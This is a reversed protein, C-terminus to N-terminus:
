EVRQAIAALERLPQALVVALEADTERLEGLFAVTAARLARDLEGVYLGGVLADRVAATVDPPLEDAGKAHAAPLGLRLCALALVHDRVGSIWYEAQWAAGREISTRAHLLHHWALGILHAANASGPQRRVAEGFVVQFEGDGLPRFDAAPAFGLDIELLGPLLFARYTVLGAQLDFHHVAGLDRYVFAGWDGLVDAVANGEAVGFFLDIDSWRDETGRAASGTIAAGAIREDERARALLKARVRQRRDATFM